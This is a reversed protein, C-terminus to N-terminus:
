DLDDPLKEIAIPAQKKLDEIWKLARDSPQFLKVLPATVDIIEVAPTQFMVEWKSIILDVGAEQAVGALSNKVHALINIVSGTSFGQEHLRRQGTKMQSEIQKIRKDDKAAKATNYDAQVTTMLKRHMDSNGFAIAIARSDFTGIRLPKDKSQARVPLTILGCVAAASSIVFARKNIKNM